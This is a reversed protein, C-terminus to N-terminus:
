RRHAMRGISVAVMTIITVHRARGGFYIRRREGRNYHVAGGTVYQVRGVGIPRPMRGRQGFDHREIQEELPEIGALDSQVRLEPNGCVSGLLRRGLKAELGPLADGDFVRDLRHHCFGGVVGGDRDGLIEAAVFTLERFQHRLLRMREAHAAGSVDIRGSQGIVRLHRCRTILGQESPRDLLPKGAVVFIERGLLEDIVATRHAIM